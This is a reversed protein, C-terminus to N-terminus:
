ASDGLVLWLFNVGNFLAHSLVPALLDGSREYLWTWFIGLLWLPAVAALNLHIIAFLFSVGIWGTMRLGHDRLFPWLIGRFLLEEVMPATVVAFVFLAAREWLQDAARVAEVATQSGHPIDFKELIWLCGNHAFWAGLVAPVTLAAAWALRRGPGPRWLGFAARWTLGHSRVLWHVLGLALAHFVATGMVMLWVPRAGPGDELGRAVPALVLMSAAMAVALWTVFRLTKELDWPRAPQVGRLTTRAGGRPPPTEIRFLRIGPAPNDEM